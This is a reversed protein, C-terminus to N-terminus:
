CYMSSRIQALEAKTVNTSLNTEQCTGINQPWVQLKHKSSIQKTELYLVIIFTSFIKPSGEM